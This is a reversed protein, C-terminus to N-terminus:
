LQQDQVNARLGSAYCCIGDVEADAMVLRQSTEAERSTTLELVSVQGHWAADVRPPAMCSRHM